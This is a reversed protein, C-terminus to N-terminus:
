LCESRPLSLPPPPFKHPPPPSTRLPLSLLLMCALSPHVSLTHKCTRCSLSCLEFCLLPSAYKKHLFMMNGNQSILYFTLCRKIEQTTTSFIVTSRGERRRKGKRDSVGRHLDPAGLRRPLQGRIGLVHTKKLNATINDLIPVSFYLNSSWRTAHVREKLRSLTM